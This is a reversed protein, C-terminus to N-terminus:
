RGIVLRRVVSRSVVVCDSRKIWWDSTNKWKVRHMLVALIEVFKEPAVMTIIAPLNDYM